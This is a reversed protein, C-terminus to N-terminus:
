ELKMSITVLGGPSVEVTTEASKAVGAITGAINIKHKGQFIGSLTATKGRKTIPAGDNLAITWGAAQDGNEITVNIAGTRTGDAVSRAQDEITKLNAKFEQIWTNTEDQVVSNMAQVFIKIRGLARQLQEDNPVQGQWSSRETQYDMEFEAHLSKIKMDASIFRM